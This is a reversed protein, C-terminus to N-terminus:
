KIKNYYSLNKSKILKESYQGFNYGLKKLAQKKTTPEPNTYLGIKPWDARRRGNAHVPEREVIRRMLRNRTLWVDNDVYNDVFYKQYKYQAALEVTAQQYMLAIADQFKNKFGPYDLPWLKSKRNWELDIIFFDTSFGSLKEKPRSTGWSSAALVQGNKEMELVLKKIFKVDLCWTDAATVLVYRLGKIRQSSFYALGANILDVAGQFHGRNPIKILKDELYKKYGFSTQGNHAHVLFVGGFEKAYLNKSIEEQIKVDDLHHYSYILHGLM